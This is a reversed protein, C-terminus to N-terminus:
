GLVEWHGVREGQIGWDRDYGVGEGRAEGEGTGTYGGSFHHHFCIRAVLHHFPQNVGELKLSSGKLDGSELLKAYADSYVVVIVNM